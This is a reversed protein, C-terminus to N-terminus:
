KGFLHLGRKKEKKQAIKSEPKIEPVEIKPKEPPKSEIKPIKKEEASPIAINTETFKSFSPRVQARYPRGTAHRVGVEDGSVWNIEADLEHSLEPNIDVINQSTLVWAVGYKPLEKLIKVIELSIPDPNKPVLNEAKPIVFFAKVKSTPGQAKFKKLTAALASHMLGKVLEKPLGKVTIIGARGVNGIWPSIIEDVSVEGDLYPGYMNKMLNVIRIARYVEFGTKETVKSELASIIDTLSNFKGQNENITKALIEGSISKSFGLISDWQPVPYANLNIHIEKPPILAKVPFGMPAANIQFKAYKSTDEAPLALGAFTGDWDLIAVSIASMLAGEAIVHATQLRKTVSQGSILTKFFAEPPEEVKKGSLDTGLFIAGKVATKPTGAVKSTSLITSLIPEGFLNAAMKEDADRIPNIRIEASKAVDQVQKLSEKLATVQERVNAKFEASSFRISTIGSSV